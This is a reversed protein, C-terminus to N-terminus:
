TLFLKMYGLMFLSSLKFFPCLIQILTEGFFIHLHGIFVHFSETDNTVLSICLLVM